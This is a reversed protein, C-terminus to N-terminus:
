IVLFYFSTMFVDFVIFTEKIGVILSSLNYNIKM